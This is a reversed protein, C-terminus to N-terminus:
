GKLSKAVGFFTSSHFWWNSTSITLPSHFSPPFPLFFLSMSM